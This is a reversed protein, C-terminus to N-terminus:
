SATAIRTTVPQQQIGPKWDSAFFHLLLPLLCYVSAGLGSALLAFERQTFERLPTSRSAIALRELTDSPLQKDNCDHFVGGLRAAVQRLTSVDQRSQRGDIFSGAVPDGVGVVLVDAIAAPMKPMGTAPVTEGDSVVVLTTSKPDWRRATSAAMELGKFLNTEGKDFAYHMPLDGLINYIVGMDTTDVVVPIARTYFAIVSIKYQSTPVRAFFSQMVDAVRRMRSQKGEIGADQLRMSPSVDLAILLHRRTKPDQDEAVHIKPDLLYLSILGWCCATLALVRLLPTAFVWPRPRGGPGFALVAAARVRRRHLAEAFVALVFVILAAFEAVM